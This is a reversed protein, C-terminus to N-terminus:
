EEIDAYIYDERPGVYSKVLGKIKPNMLWAVRRMQLPVIAGDELLVKEAEFLADMREKPDRCTSSFDLLEDYKANSYSIQNYPSNTTWLCLYTHPDDYDPAWGSFVMQFERNTEMQLRQKYPVQKINVVIGLNRQIQDQLVEAQIRSVDTDTTLLELKIEQPNSVSLEKMAKDLYDKATNIDAKLPFAEYPYEEGYKKDVGAVVPLVYRTGADFLGDTTINIYDERDIAYNVALRLNKNKLPNKGDMNLKLFDDAGNYYLQSKDLYQEVLNSPVDVFDLDGNEFMSLATNPDPVVIVNVKDLNVKDKDWYSQNKVLVLRDEHKWEELVFPGCYVNNDPDAAFDQGFKEVLDKRVGNFHPMNLMALFYPAQKELTIELTKENLAKVGTEEIGLEGSNVKMANKIPEAIFSYPSAAAPDVLRKIAYEFDYATINVDDSWKADRLYFTYVLGDESVEWEKAIGPLVKGDHLRVLGEQIQSILTMSDTSNVLSQDLTPMDILVSYTLIKEVSVNEEKASTDAPTQNGGCGMLSLLMIIVFLLALVTKRKM